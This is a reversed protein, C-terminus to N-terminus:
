FKKGNELKWRVRWTIYINEMCYEVYKLMKLNGARELHVAVRAEALLSFADHGRVDALLFLLALILDTEEDVRLESVHVGIMLVKNSECLSDFLARFEFIYNPVPRINLAPQRFPDLCNKQCHKNYNFIKYM